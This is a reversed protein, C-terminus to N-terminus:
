WDRGIRRARSPFPDTSLTHFDRGERGVRGAWHRGAALVQSKDFAQRPTPFLNCGKAETGARINFKALRGNKQPFGIFRPLFDDASMDLMTISAPRGRGAGAGASNDSACAATQRSTTPLRGPRQIERAAKEIRIAWQRWTQRARNSSICILLNSSSHTATSPPKCRRSRSRAAASRSVRATMAVARARRRVGCACICGREAPRAISAAGVPLSGQSRSPRQSVNRFGAATDPRM